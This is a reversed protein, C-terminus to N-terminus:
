RCHGCSQCNGGCQSSKGSKKDKIMSYIILGVVVALGAMVIYTGM